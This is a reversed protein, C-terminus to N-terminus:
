MDYWSTNIKKNQNEPVYAAAAYWDIAAALREELGAKIRFPWGSVERKTVTGKHLKARKSGERGQEERRGREREGGAAM